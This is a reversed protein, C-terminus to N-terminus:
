AILRRNYMIKPIIGLTVTSVLSASTIVDMADITEVVYSYLGSELPRPTSVSTDAADVTIIPNGPDVEPDEGPLWCRIRKREADGDNNTWSHDFEKSPPDDTITYASPATSTAAGSIPIVDAGWILATPPSPTVAGVSTPTGHFGLGSLDQGSNDKLAVWARLGNRVSGPRLQAQILEAESLIRNWIQIHALQGDWTRAQDSRNGVMLGVGPADATGAPNGQITPNVSQLVRDTGVKALWLLANNTDSTADFTAAAWYWENFTISSAPTRWQGNTTSFSWGFVWRGTVIVSDPGGSDGNDLAWQLGNFEGTSVANFALLCSVKLEGDLVDATTNEIKSISGDFTLAM